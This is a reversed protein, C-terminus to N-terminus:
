FYPFSRGNLREWRIVWAILYAGLVVGNAAGLLFGNERISESFLSLALYLLVPTLLIILFTDKKLHM